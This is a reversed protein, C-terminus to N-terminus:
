ALLPSFQSPIPSPCFLALLLLLSYHLLKEDKIAIYELLVSLGNHQMFIDKVDESYHCLNKLASEALTVLTYNSNQMAKILPEV